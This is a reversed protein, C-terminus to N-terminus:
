RSEWQIAEIDMAPTWGSTDQMWRLVSKSAQAARGWKGYTQTGDPQDIQDRAIIQAYLSDAAAYNGLKEECRALCYLDVLEADDAKTVLELERKADTLHKIARAQLETAAEGEATAARALLDEGSRLMVRGVASHNASGVILRSQGPDQETEEAEDTDVFPFPMPVNTSPESPARQAIPSGPESVMPLDDTGRDVPISTLAGDLDDTSKSRTAADLQEELTTAAVSLREVEKEETLLRETGNERVLERQEPDLAFYREARVPLGLDLRVRLEQLRQLRSESEAFERERRALEEEIKTTTRFGGQAPLSAALLMLVFATRLGM